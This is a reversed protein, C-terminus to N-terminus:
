STLGLAELRLDLTIADPRERGQWAMVDDPSRPDSAELAVPLFREGTASLSYAEV